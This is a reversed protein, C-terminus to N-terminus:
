EKFTFQVIEGSDKDRLKLTDSKFTRHFKADNIRLDTALVQNDFFTDREMARHQEDFFGSMLEFHAETYPLHYYKHKPTCFVEIDSMVKSNVSQYQHRHPAGPPMLFCSSLTLLLFAVIIRKM